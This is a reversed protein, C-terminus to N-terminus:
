KTYIKKTLKREQFWLRGQYIKNIRETYYINDKKNENNLNFSINENSKPMNVFWLFKGYKSHFLRLFLYIKKISFNIKQSM